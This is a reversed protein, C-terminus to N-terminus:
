AVPPRDGPGACTFQAPIPGGEAFAPSTVTLGPPASPASKAAPRAGCGAMLLVGGLLAIGRRFMGAM